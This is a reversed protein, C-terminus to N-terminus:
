GKSDLPFFNPQNKHHDFAIFEEPNFGSFEKFEKIFHAQDAYGTDHAVKAWEPKEKNQIQGLLNNFRMIRHFVKPTLGVYKKFQQILHKQTKSYQRIIGSHNAVPNKTFSDIITILEEKPTRTQDYESKLWSQVKSFKTKFDEIVMLENRLIVIEEGFISSADVVSNNLENVSIKLFPHAGYPKFQIVLMESNEHASISLYNKHMGSIWVNNFIGNPELNDNDFTNREIGDLEFIIFLHGTPVVREISHDPMFGKYYFISEIYTSFPQSLPCIEFQM